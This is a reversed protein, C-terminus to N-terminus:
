EDTDLDALLDVLIYNVNDGIAQDADNYKAGYESYHRGDVNDIVAAIAADEVSSDVNHTVTFDSFSESGVKKLFYDPHEFFLRKVEKSADADDLDEIDEDLIERLTPPWAWYLTVETEESVSVNFGESTIVHKKNNSDKYFFYIHSSLFNNITEDTVVTLSDDTKYYVGNDLEFTAQYGTINLNLKINLNGSTNPVISFKLTGSDGPKLGYDSSDRRTIERLDPDGEGDYHNNLESTNNTLKWKIASSGGGTTTSNGYGSVTNDLFTDYLGADGTTKLEFPAPATKM